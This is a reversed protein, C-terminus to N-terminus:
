IQWFLKSAAPLVNVNFTPPKPSNRQIHWSVNCDIGYSSYTKYRPLTAFSAFKAANAVAMYSRLRVWIVTVLHPPTPYSSSYTLSFVSSLVFNQCISDAGTTYFSLDVPGADWPSTCVNKDSFSSALTKKLPSLTCSCRTPHFFM